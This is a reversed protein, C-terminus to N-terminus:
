RDEPTDKVATGASLKTIRPPRYQTTGVIVQERSYGTPVKRPTQNGPYAQTLALVTM